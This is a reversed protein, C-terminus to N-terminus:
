ERIRSRTRESRFFLGEKQNWGYYRGPLVMDIEAIDNEGVDGALLLGSVPEFSFRYPNRFGYAYTEHAIGLFLGFPNDGPIGFQGNASDNGTPNIRLFSGLVNGPDSGNGGEGHGDGHDDQSGGDGLSIYLMGDPGFSLGGGLHSYQPQDIRMLVRASAPDVVATPDTVNPLHWETIVSQRDITLAEAPFDAPATFPESTYTYLLGNQRSDPHFAFGPLGREDVTGPGGIGLTVLRGTVDLFLTRSGTILSINWLKGVQDSVFVRFPFLVPPTTGWNPSTLGTVITSPSVHLGGKQVTQPIPDILEGAVAPVGAGTIIALLVLRCFGAGPSLKPSM